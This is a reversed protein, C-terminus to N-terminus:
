LADNYLAAVVEILVVMDPIEIRSMGDEGSVIVDDTDVDGDCDGGDDDDDDDDDDDHIGLILSSIHLKISARSRSNFLM